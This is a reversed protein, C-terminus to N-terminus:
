AQGGNVTITCDRPFYSIGTQYVPCDPNHINRTIGLIPTYRSITIGGGITQQDNKELTTVFSIVELQDFQIKQKKMKM